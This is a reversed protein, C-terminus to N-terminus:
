THLMVSIADMAYTDISNDPQPGRISVICKDEEREASESEKAFEGADVKVRKVM